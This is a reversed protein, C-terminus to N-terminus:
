GRDVEAKPRPPLDMTRTQENDPVHPGADILERLRRNDALLRRVDVTSLGTVDNQLELHALESATLPRPIETKRLEAWALPTYLTVTKEDAGNPIRLKFVANCEAKHPCNVAVPATLTGAADDFHVAAIYPRGCRPCTGKQTTEKLMAPEVEYGAM